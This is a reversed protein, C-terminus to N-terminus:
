LLGDIEKACRQLRARVIPEEVASDDELSVVLLANPRVSIIRYPSAGPTVAPEGLLAKLVVDDEVLGRLPHRADFEVHGVASFPTANEDILFGSRAGLDAVTERVLARVAALLPPNAVIEDSLAM